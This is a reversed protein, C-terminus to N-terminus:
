ISILDLNISMQIFSFIHEHAYQLKSFKSNYRINKLFFSDQLLLALYEDLFKRSFM